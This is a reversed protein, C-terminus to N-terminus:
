DASKQLLAYFFGDHDKDPLLQGAEGVPVPLQRADQHRTLFREIQQRNEEPFVSCTVYLLKGDSALTQWLADLIAEQTRAFGAVDEPMRLWKSDPHRRVVGSATCPVDALIRDYAQGDWWDKSNAADAVQLRAQLGLRDLNERVRQLRVADKDLALVDCDVRELVHATKGGPASCADLVRMGPQVDLLQAALQAGADQVSVDGGAFGPLASVPQPEVLRIGDEGLPEGALGASQLRELYGSVTENRRNVRLTMPPHTNSNELIERWHQPYDKKLKNIWWRPFSYTAVEATLKPLIEAQKRTANRLVGNVFGKAWGFGMAESAAVAENVVAHTAARTYLLQYVAVRLLCHLAPEQVPRSVLERLFADIRGLHRLTGYVMDQLAGRASPALDPHRRWIDPMRQALSQGALM